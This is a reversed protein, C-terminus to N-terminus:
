NIHLELKTLLKSNLDNIHQQTTQHLFQRRLQFFPFQLEMGDHIIQENKKVLLVCERERQHNSYQGEINRSHNWKQEPM